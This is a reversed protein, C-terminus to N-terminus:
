KCNQGYEWNQIRGESVVTIDHAYVLTESTKIGCKLGPKFLVGDVSCVMM